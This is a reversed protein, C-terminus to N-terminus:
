ELPKGTIESVKKMVAHMQEHINGGKVHPVKGRSEDPLEVGLMRGLKCAAEYYAREVSFLDMELLAAHEAVAEYDRRCYACNCKKDGDKLIWKERNRKQREDIMQAFEKAGKERFEMLVEHPYNCFDDLDDYFGMGKGSIKGM